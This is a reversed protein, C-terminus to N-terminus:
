LYCLRVAPDDDDNDGDSDQSVVVVFPGIVFSLLTSSLPSSLQVKKYFHSNNM